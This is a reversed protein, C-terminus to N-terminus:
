VGLNKLFDYLYLFHMIFKRIIRKALDQCYVQGFEM